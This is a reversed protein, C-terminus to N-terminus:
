AEAYVSFLDGVGKIMAKIGCKQVLHRRLMMAYRPTTYTSLREYTIGGQRILRPIHETM